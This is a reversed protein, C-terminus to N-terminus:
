TGLTRTNRAIMVNHRRGNAETACDGIAISAISLMTVDKASVISALLPPVENDKEIEACGSASHVAPIIRLRM